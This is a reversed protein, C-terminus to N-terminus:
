ERPSEFHMFIYDIRPPKVGLHRLMNLAQARHHMGHNVVHLVLDLLRSTHPNGQMDKYDIMRELGAKDKTATIFEDWKGRLDSWQEKLKEISVANDIGSIKANAGDMCRALWIAETGFTHVLTRRLSGMGIEFQQDLAADDLSEAAAFIRRMSWDDYEFLERITVLENMDRM